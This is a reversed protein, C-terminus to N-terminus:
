SLIPEMGGVEINRVIDINNDINMQTDVDFKAFYIMTANTVETGTPTPTDIGAVIGIETLNVIGTGRLTMVNRIEKIESLYLNFGIKSIQVAYNNLQPDIYNTVVRPTPSLIDANNTSMEKITTVGNSTTIEHITPRNIFSTIVKAYYCAYDIGNYTEIVRLRYKEREVGVLDSTVPRMIYPIHQFLAADTARHKSYKFVSNNILSNGGTGLTLYKIKPYVNPPIVKKPLINFKENLTTNPLDQHPLGMFMNAALHMGYMTKQSNLIM